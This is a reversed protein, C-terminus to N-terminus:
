QIMHLSRVVKRQLLGFGNRVRDKKFMSFISVTAQNTLEEVAVFKQGRPWGDCLGGCVFDQFYIRKDSLFFALTMTMTITMTMSMM